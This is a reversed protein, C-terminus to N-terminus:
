QVCLVWRSPPPCKKRSHRSIGRKFSLELYFSIPQVRRKCILTREFFIIIRNECVVMVVVKQVNHTYSVSLLFDNEGTPQVLVLLPILSDDFIVRVFIDLSTLNFSCCALRTRIKM